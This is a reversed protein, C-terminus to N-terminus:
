PRFDADKIAQAFEAVQDNQQYRQAKMIDDYSKMLYEAIMNPNEGMRLQELIVQKIKVSM